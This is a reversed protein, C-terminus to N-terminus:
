EVPLLLEQDINIRDLNKLNNVKIIREAREPSYSGYFHKIISEGTDGSKVVYKKMKTTDPKVEESVSESTKDETTKASEENQVPETQEIQTTEAEQVNQADQEITTEAQPKNNILPFTFSKGNAKSSFYGICFMTLLTLVVGAVFGMAVYATPSNSTFQTTKFNQWLLDIEQAKNVLDNNEKEKHPEIDEPRVYEGITGNNENEKALAEIVEMSERSLTSRRITSSKM